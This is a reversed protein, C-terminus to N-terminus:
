MALAREDVKASVDIRRSSGQRRIISTVPVIRVDAVEALRVQAGNESNIM